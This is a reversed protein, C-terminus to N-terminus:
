LELLFSDGDRLVPFQARYSDLEEKNVLDAKTFVIWTRTLPADFNKLFDKFENVM